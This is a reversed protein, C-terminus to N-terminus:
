YAVRRLGPVRDFAEDLSILPERSTRIVERRHDAFFMRAPGGRGTRGEQHFRILFTTDAIM